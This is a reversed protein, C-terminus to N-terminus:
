PTPTIYTGQHFRLRWELGDHEWLSSHRSAGSAGSITYTLLAHRRGLREITWDRTEEPAAGREEAVLAGIIASRTWLRGSRGIERFDQHLIRDLAAADGRVAPSHLASERARLSERLEDDPEHAAAADESEDAAATRADHIDPM